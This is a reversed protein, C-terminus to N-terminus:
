LQTENHAAPAAAPLHMRSRLFEDVLAPVICDEVLALVLEQSFVGSTIVLKPQPRPAPGAMMPM